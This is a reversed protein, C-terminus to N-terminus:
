EYKIGKLLMKLERVTTVCTIYVGYKLEDCIFVDFCINDWNDDELVLVIRESTFTNGNRKFNKSLYKLFSNKTNSNLM